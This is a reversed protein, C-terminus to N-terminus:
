VAGSDTWLEFMYETNYTFGSNDSGIFQLDRALLSESVWLGNALNWNRKDQFSAKLQEDLQLAQPAKKARVWITAGQRRFINQEFRQGPIGTDLYVATVIPDGMETSTIGEASGPAPVGHRPQIWMPPHSPDVTEPDRVVAAAILTERIGHLLLENQSPPM